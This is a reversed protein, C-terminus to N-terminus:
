HPQPSRTKGYTSPNGWGGKVLRFPDALDVVFGHSGSKGAM